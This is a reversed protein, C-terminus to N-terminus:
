VMKLLSFVVASLLAVLSSIIAILTKPSFRSIATGKPPPFSRHDKQKHEKIGERLQNKIEQDMKFVWNTLDQKSALKTLKRDISKGVKDFGEQIAKATTISEELIMNKTEEKILRIETNDERQTNRIPSM